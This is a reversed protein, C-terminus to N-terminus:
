IMRDQLDEEAKDEGDQGQGYIDKTAAAHFFSEEKDLVKGIM